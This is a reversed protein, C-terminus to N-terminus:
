CWISRHYYALATGTIAALVAAALFLKTTKTTNMM